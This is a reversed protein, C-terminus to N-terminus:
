SIAMEVLERIFEPNPKFWVIDEACYQLIGVSLSNKIFELVKSPETDGCEIFTNHDCSGVDAMYGLVSVEDDVAYVGIYNLHKRAWNKMAKHEESERVRVRPHDGHEDKALSSPIDPKVEIPEIIISLKNNLIAKHMKELASMDNPSPNRYTFFLRPMYEYLVSDRSCNQDKLKSIIEILDLPGDPFIRYLGALTRDKLEKHRYQSM